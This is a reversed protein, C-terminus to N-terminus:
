ILVVTTVYMSSITMLVNRVPGCQVSYDSFGSNAMRQSLVLSSVVFVYVIKTRKVPVQLPGVYKRKNSMKGNSIESNIKKQPLGLSKKM